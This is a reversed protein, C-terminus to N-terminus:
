ELSGSFGSTMLSLTLLSDCLNVNRVKTNGYSRLDVPAFNWIGGVNGDVAKKMIKEAAEAPTAIIVIDTENDRIYEEFLNANLIPIGSVQMGVLSLNNDFIANVFFGESEFERCSAIARGLNGGGVIVMNHRKHIGLLEKLRGKLSAISYNDIGGCTFFDQRVQIATNGCREAIKASTTKSFGEAEMACVNRYYIPLRWKIAEPIDGIYLCFVEKENQPISGAGSKKDPM